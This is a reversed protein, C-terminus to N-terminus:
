KNIDQKFLQTIRPKSELLAMQNVEYQVHVTHVLTNKNIWIIFSLIEDYPEWLSSVDDIVYKVADQSSLAVDSMWFM